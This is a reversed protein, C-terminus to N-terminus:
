GPGDGGGGGIPPTDGPKDLPGVATIGMAAAVASAHRHVEALALKADALGTLARAIAADGKVGVTASLNLANRHEVAGGILAATQVAAADVAAESAHILAAIATAAQARACPPRLQAVANM